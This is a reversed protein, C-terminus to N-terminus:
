INTRARARVKLHPQNYPKVLSLVPKYRPKTQREKYEELSKILERFIEGLAEALNNIIENLNKSLEVISNNLNECEM